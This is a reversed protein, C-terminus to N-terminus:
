TGAVAPAEALLRLLSCTKQTVLAQNGRVMGPVWFVEGELEIVPRSRRARVPLKGDTFVDQLKRHGRMGLPQIRDGPKPTRVLLPGAVADADAVLEFLSAPRRWDPTATEIMAGIRWGSRLDLVSGPLLFRQPESLLAQTRTPKPAQPDSELGEPGWARLGESIYRLVGYERGVWQGRPLRVLGNPHAGCALDVIAEFQAASLGVLDGRVARLWARVLRLAVPREAATIAGVALTDGDSSAAALRRADEQHLWELEESVVRAFGALRRQVAPSISQLLPVIEHRVRNRLFRRNTNSSDQQFPLRQARLFEMVEGRSCELLPRIIHGDRVPRIAGLGDSGTGRLLRMLVTEAQDDCTHGTAIKTYGHEAAARTLFEYRARRAREELNRGRHLGETKGLLCPVGLRAAVGEACRQDRQSEEARLGHNLHAAGVSIRLRPSLKVLAALLAVSDPGGSVATLVRDGPVLMEYRKLTRRVRQLLPSSDSHVALSTHCRQPPLEFPSGERRRTQYAAYIM